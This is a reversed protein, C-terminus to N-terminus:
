IGNKIDRDIHPATRRSKPAMSRRHQGGVVPILQPDRRSEGMTVARELVVALHLVLSGIKVARRVIVADGPVVRRQHDGPRYREFSRDDGLAVAGQRAEALLGPEELVALRARMLSM